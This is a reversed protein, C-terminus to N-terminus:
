GFGGESPPKVGLVAKGIYDRCLEVSYAMLGGAQADRFHRQIPSTRLYGSAGGIRVGLDAIDKAVENALLKAAIAADLVDPSRTDALWMTQAALLRAARLRVSAEAVDFQVWQMHSLPQNTSPIVRGNAHDILAGLAAEAIGISLWAL